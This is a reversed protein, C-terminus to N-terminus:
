RVKEFRGLRNCITNSAASSCQHLTNENRIPSSHVLTKLLRWLYFNLFQHLAFMSCHLQDQQVRGNTMNPVISYIEFMDVLIHRYWTTCLDCKNNGFACKGATMSSWKLPIEQPSQRYSTKAFRTSTDSLWWLVLGCLLRSISSTDLM